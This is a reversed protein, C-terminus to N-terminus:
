TGTGDCVLPAHHMGQQNQTVTAMEFQDGMGLWSLYVKTFEDRTVHQTVENATNLAEWLRSLGLKTMAKYILPGHEGVDVFGQHEM